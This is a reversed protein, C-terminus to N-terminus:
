DEEGLVAEIDRAGHLVRVLEIGEPAERYFLLYKRFGRVRLMRLGALRPDGYRRAIGIGPADAVAALTEEVAALLHLTIDPSREGLYAATEVLDRRARRLRVVRRSTVGGSM